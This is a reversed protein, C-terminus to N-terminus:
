LKNDSHPTYFEPRRDAFLHNAPTVWKDDACAPDVSVSLVGRFDGSARFFLEGQPGTVQSMGSFSTGRESGTRNSTATFVRNEISRTIMAAQCYPLVLNAPHLIIQAGELALRRAVEPFFWDFCIMLGCRVGNYEFVPPPESGPSFVAKETNFLHLKRYTLLHSGGAFVAASNYLLDGSRECIGCVALRGRPAGPGPRSWEALLRSAPGSPIEESAAAAEAPANFRYGSSALEPLVLADSGQDQAEGLLFRLHELNAATDGLEFHSQGVSLIM